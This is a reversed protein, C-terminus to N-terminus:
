RSLTYVYAAVASVQADTLPAGGMPPMPAPHQKPQPVGNTIVQVLSEYSGDVNLWEADNLAPALPGGAGAQGHCAFCTGGFVTQGETVMAQTVGAPLAVTAPPAAAGAPPAAAPATTDVAPFVLPEASPLNPRGLERMTTGEESHVFFLPVSDGPAKTPGRAENSEPVRCASLTLTLVLLASAGRALLRM